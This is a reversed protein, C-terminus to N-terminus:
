DELMSMSFMAVILLLVGAVLQEPPPLWDLSITFMEPPAWQGLAGVVGGVVAVVPKFAVLGGLAVALPLSLREIWLRRRVRRVVHESFGDDAIPEAAFLSELFEDEADKLKDAM